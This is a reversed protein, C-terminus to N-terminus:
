PAPSTLVLFKLSSINERHPSPLEPRTDHNLAKVAVAMGESQPIAIAKLLRIGPQTMTLPHSLLLPHPSECQSKFYMPRLLKSYSGIRLYHILKRLYYLIGGKRGGGCKSYEAHSHRPTIEIVWMPSMAWGYVAMCKCLSIITNHLGMQLQHRRSLAPTDRAAWRAAAMAADILSLQRGM